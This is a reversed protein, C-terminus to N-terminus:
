TSYSFAGDAMSVGLHGSEGGYMGREVADCEQGSARRLIMATEKLPKIAEVFKADEDAPPLDRLGVSGDRALPAHHPAHMELGFRVGLGLDDGAQAAFNEVHRDVHPGSRRRIQPPVARYEASLVGPSEHDRFTERM